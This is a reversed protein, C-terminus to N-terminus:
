TLDEGEKRRRFFSWGMMAFLASLVLITVLRSTELLPSEYWMEVRSTGQPVAVARVSHYARLVDTE